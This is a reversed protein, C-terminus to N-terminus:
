PHGGAERLKDFLIQRGDELQVGRAEPGTEGRQQILEDGDVLRQERSAVLKLEVDVFPMAGPASLGEVNCGVFRV